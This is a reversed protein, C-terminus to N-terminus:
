PRRGSVRQQLDGVQANAPINSWWQGVPKGREVLRLSSARLLKGQAKKDVGARGVVAIHTSV